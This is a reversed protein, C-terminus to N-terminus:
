VKECRRTLAFQMYLVQRYIGYICHFTAIYEETQQCRITTIMYNNSLPIGVSIFTLIDDAKIGAQLFIIAWTYATRELNHFSTSSSFNSPNIISLM